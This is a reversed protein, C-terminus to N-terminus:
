GRGNSGFCRLIEIRRIAERIAEPDLTVQAGRLKRLIERLEEEERVVQARRTESPKSGPNNAMKQLM